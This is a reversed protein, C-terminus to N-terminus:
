IIHDISHTRALHGIEFIRQSQMQITTENTRKDRTKQQEVTTMTTARTNEVDDFTNVTHFPKRWQTQRRHINKGQEIRCKEHQLAQFKRVRSICISNCNVVVVAIIVREYYFYHQGIRFRGVPARYLLNREDSNINAQKSNLNHIRQSFVNKAIADLKLQLRIMNRANRHPNVANGTLFDM